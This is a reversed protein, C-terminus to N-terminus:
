AVDATSPAADDGVDDETDDETPTDLITRYALQSAHNRVLLRFRDTTAWQRTDDRTRSEALLGHDALLRAAAEIMAMTCADKGTRYRGTSTLVVSKRRDYAQWAQQLGDDPTDDELTRCLTRLREEVTQATFRRITADDLAQKTPYCCAAIGAVILGYILRDDTDTIRLMDRLDGLAPAYPSESTAALVVGSIEDVHLIKLGQGEAIDNCVQRFHLDATYRSVLRRLDLSRSPRERRLGHAILTGADTTAAPHTTTM